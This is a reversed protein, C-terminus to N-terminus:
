SALGRRLREGLSLTLNFLAHEVDGPDLKERAALKKSVAARFLRDDHLRKDIWRVRAAKRAISRRKTPSLSLSRAPGGKLGGLRGLAMANPNKM